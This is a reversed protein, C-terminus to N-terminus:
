FDIERGAFAYRFLQEMEAKNCPRPNTETCPDSIAKETIANLEKEFHEEAVGYEKLSAPIALRERLAAVERCLSNSLEATNEGNLGMERALVAYKSSAAKQNFQLVYPLFIANGAGHPINFVLGTAHALSHSIGLMSNSFAIGAMCQAYHMLERGQPNGSCSEALNNMILKASAAAFADSFPNALTAAYAELAHTLADMGTLAALKPPMADALEPDLISLDPILEKSDLAYKTKSAYDSIVASTTVESATGSTSPIAAFKAKGRLPPVGDLEIAQEFRLGPHEYFVWMAKAADIASGGGLGIIWDPNFKRMQEAGRMVTEISPDPEVNEVIDVDLGAAKLHGRVKDLFGFKKMSGGGIVITARKGPLRKLQELSNRGYYTNRPLSFQNM